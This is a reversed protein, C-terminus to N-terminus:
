HQAIASAALAHTAKNNRSAFARGAWPLYDVMLVLLAIWLGLTGVIGLLGDGGLPLHYDYLGAGTKPISQGGIFITWRMMWASHVAILGTILGSSAPRWIALAMPLITALVAWVATLQWQPMGAVQSFAASHAPSVGSLSVFLWGGGLTLVVALALVLLRNLGIELQNDHGGVFRNFLLSLGIAGAFATAAFQLPLFPTNWLPRAQVVMVEMGTYLAVLVAGVLTLLAAASIAMRPAAGGRGALRYFRALLADGGQGQVAFDGRLVLWAYLLLGGLYVPIFFSGWSMWSQPQFYLYFNLFRGPGHLDALLAVPATLGCALAGLLALRGLKEHEARGFVFYPLTLMFSGFSLGILFFYSVAWPLWAVGRTVNLVEIIQSDM